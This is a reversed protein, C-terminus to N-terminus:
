ACKEIIHYHVSIYLHKTLVNPRPLKVYLGKYVLNGPGCMLVHCSLKVEKLPQLITHITKNNPELM